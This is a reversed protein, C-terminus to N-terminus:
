EAGGEEIWVILSQGTVEKFAAALAKGDMKKAKAMERKGKLNQDQHQPQAPAGDALAVQANRCASAVPPHKHM